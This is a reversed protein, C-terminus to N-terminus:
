SLGEEEAKVLGIRYLPVAMDVVGNRLIDRQGLNVCSIRVFYNGDASRDVDVRYFLKEMSPFATFSLGKLGKSDFVQVDINPDIYGMDALEKESFFEGEVRSGGRSYFFRSLRRGKGWDDFKYFM